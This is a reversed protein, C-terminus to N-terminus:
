VATSGYCGRWDQWRCSLKARFKFNYESNKKSEEKERKRCGPCKDMKSPRFLEAAMGMQDQMQQEYLRLTEELQESFPSIINNPM